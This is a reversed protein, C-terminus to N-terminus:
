LQGILDHLRLLGVCNENKDTVPLVNIQSSRNEMLELARIAKDTARVSVPNATMVDKAVLEFFKRKHKLARRIDGDTILGVWNAQKLNKGGSYVLVAGLKKETSVNVVKEMSDTAAVWPLNPGSKMLDQVLLTLRRGLAGGPHNSAFVEEKFDFHLSLVVALADGLALAVTTSSTPALNLPCAEQEVGGDLIVDSAMAIASKKNGVISIIKTKLNRLSPLLSVIEESSGSYSFLLVVDKASVVGLDGHSAETPHLYLAPTGTSALTAAVKAAIKGSKGVGIVVVKGGSRVTRVVLEVADSFNQGLRDKAVTICKAEVELVRKAEVLNNIKNKAM